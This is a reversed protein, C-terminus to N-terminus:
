EVAEVITVGLDPVLLRGDQTGSVHPRGSILAATPQWAAVLRGTRPDHVTVRYEEDEVNRGNGAQVIFVHGDAVVPSGAPQRRLALSWLEEGTGADYAHATHGDLSVVVGDGVGPGVFPAVDAVPHTWRQKGSAADYAAIAAGGATPSVSLAFVTGDAYATPGFVVADPDRWVEHGTAGDYRALGGGGYIVDGDPLLLPTMTAQQGPVPTAWRLQGTHLDAAALGVDQVGYFVTKGDTAPISGFAQPGGPAEWLVKGDDLRLGQVSDDDRTVVIGDAVMAGTHTSGPTEALTTASGDPAIKLLREASGMIIDDGALVPPEAPTDLIVRNSLRLHVGGGSAAEATTPYAFLVTNTVGSGFATLVLDDGVLAPEVDNFWTDGPAAAPLQWRDSLRGDTLGFVRVEGRQLSAVVEDGVIVPTGPDEPLERKWLLKGDDTDYATLLGIDEVVLVGNDAALPTETFNRRRSEWQIAGDASFAHLVGGGDMVVIHGDTVLPGQSFGSDFSASWAVGGDDPELATLTGSLDGALVHEGDYAIASRVAGALEQQWRTDGDAIALMSVTGDDTPVAVQDGALVPSASVVDPLTRVWLARGDERALAWVQKASDAVIVADGAIVPAALIPGRLRVQWRMEGTGTTRLSVAGDREALVMVEGDSVPPHLARESWMDTWALRRGLVGDPVAFTRDPGFGFTSGRAAAVDGAPEPAHGEAYWNAEVGHFETLEETMDVDTTDVRDRAKVTGYGPCTWEDVTETADPDLKDSDDLNLPVVTVFHACDEFTHGGVEVDVIETLETESSYEIDGVMGKYSWSRGEEVPLRYAALPPDLQYWTDGEEQAYQYMTNGRVTLYSRISRPGGSGPYDTYDRTVETLPLAAGDDGPYIAPRVVQSTRTGSPKGHDYVDYVWTTGLDLPQEERMAALHDEPVTAVVGAVAAAPVLLVAPLWGAIARGRGM